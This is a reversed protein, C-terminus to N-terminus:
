RGLGVTIRHAAGLDCDFPTLAYDVNFWGVRLGFGCGLRNSPAGLDYGLRFALLENWCFELGAALGPRGQYVYYSGDLTGSLRLRRDPRWDYAAGLRARTPLWFVERLYYLTRGFDTVSAGLSLGAVPQARVGLDLGVGAASRDLIRSYFYRASLGGSLYRSFRRAVNVYGSLDLPAFTGLPEETPKVRYEFEGASFSVVGAAVWLPGLNRGAFVSQHHTDLLWRSYGTAVGFCTADAGAAPNM